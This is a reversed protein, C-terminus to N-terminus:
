PFRPVPLHIVPLHIVPLHIVPLHRFASGCHHISFNVSPIVVFAVFFVFPAPLPESKDPGREGSGSWTRLGRVATTAEM